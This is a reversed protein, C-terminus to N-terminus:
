ERCEGWLGRSSNRAEEELEILDDGYSRAYGKEVLIRNLSRNDELKVDALVRGFSGREVTLIGKRYELVAEDGIKKKVFDKARYGWDELCKWNGRPVDEFEEPSNYGATEPTDVRKLRVTREVEGREVELTDGDVVEVVEFTRTVTSFPYFLGLFLVVILLSVSIKLATKRMGSRNILVEELLDM